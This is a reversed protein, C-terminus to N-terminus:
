VNNEIYVLSVHYANYVDVVFKAREYKDQRYLQQSKHRMM